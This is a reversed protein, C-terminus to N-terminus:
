NVKETVVFNSVTITGEDGALEYVATATKGSYDLSKLKLTKDGCTVRTQYSDRKVNYPKVSVIKREDNYKIVITFTGAAKDTTATFSFDKETQSLQGDVTYDKIMAYVRVNEEPAATSQGGFVGLTYLIFFVMAVATVSCLVITIILRTKDSLQKM